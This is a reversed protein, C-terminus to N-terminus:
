LPSYYNFILNLTCGEYAKLVLTKQKLSVNHRDISLMVLGEMVEEDKM